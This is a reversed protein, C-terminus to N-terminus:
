VFLNAFRQQNEPKMLRKFNDPASPKKKAAKKENQITIKNGSATNITIAKSSKMFNNIIKIFYHTTAYGSRM